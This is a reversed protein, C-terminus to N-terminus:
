SRNRRTTHAHLRTAAVFTLTPLSTIWARAAPRIVTGASARAAAPALAAVLAAGRHVLSLRESPELTPAMVPFRAADDTTFGLARGLEHLVVTLLDMRATGGPYLLSWGWGAATPDITTHRNDDTWGLQRGPLDAIAITYDSFDAGPLVARWMSEAQAVVPALVAATLTRGVTPAEAPPLEAALMAGDNDVITVTGTGTQITAGGTPSSLVITFTETLEKVTDNVISVAFNASTTGPSFTLTTTKSVFDSAAKATGAVTAVVVTITQTSPNSLTVAVNLTTTGTNGETVTANAVSLKAVDNDAISGSAAAPSLVTYGTGAALTLTVGETGEAVIDDVPRVTLTATTAGAAFTLTLGNAALTAGTATVTYDTTFTATGSWVLNVTSTGTVIGARTVTFVIPDNATEAGTADTAAVSVGTDNDAISGTAPSGLATYGTGAAVAVTVTEAAEVATDDVPRVTLTATTAGAAFTLTLGDAALMAGTATVTYDTTFTATGSWALNVTSTGTVVGSRTVTFVIADSGTEAGAADTAAVSVGVDNDAISGSASSPTLATYGTGAAVGVTVTEAAEVATDDVPIVTLVASTVGAGLTLTSGNSALTGASTTVTYDTGYTATGNWTLNVITTGAVNGLRSVTFVIPDNAAEAGAADTAAVTVATDDNAITVVGFGDAVNLGPASTLQVTFTEGPEYVTDGLVSLPIQVSTTGAAVTVTGASVGVYDSGAAASGDVTRYGITTATTLPATLTLTISASTTGSNGETVTVDGIRLEPPQPPAYLFFEDDTRFEFRDVSTTAGRTVVGTKGDAVAANYMWSGLLNGNLWVTAVTDKLVVELVYDTGAALTAAFSTEVVWGRRPDVHGIVVRQGAVDLAAFKFDNTAYADFAVGGIGTTNLTADLTATSTPVIATGYDATSVAYAGSAATGVDRGNSESWTGSAPGTFQDATGDEFYETADVTNGTWV